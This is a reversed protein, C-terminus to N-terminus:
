QIKLVSILLAFTCVLVVLSISIKLISLVCFTCTSSYPNETTINTVDSQLSSSIRIGGSSSGSWIIAMCGRLPCRRTLCVVYKSLVIHRGASLDALLNAIFFLANFSGFSIHVSESIHFSDTSLCRQCVNTISM